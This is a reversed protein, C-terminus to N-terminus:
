VEATTRFRNESVLVMLALKTFSVKTSLQIGNKLVGIYFKYLIKKLKCLPPTSDLDV